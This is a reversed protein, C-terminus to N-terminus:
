IASAEPGFFNWESFNLHRRGRQVDSAVLWSVPSIRSYWPWTTQNSHCNGCARDVAAALEPPAKMVHAFSVSPDSPVNARDPQVFQAAAFLIVALGAAKLLVRKM